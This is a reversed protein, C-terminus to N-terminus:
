FGMHDYYDAWKDDWPIRAPAFMWPRDAPYTPLYEPQKPVMLGSDSTECSRDISADMTLEPPEFPVALGSPRRVTIM